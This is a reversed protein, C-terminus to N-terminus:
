SEKQNGRDRNGSARLLLDLPMAGRSALQQKVFAGVEAEGFQPNVSMAHNYAEVIDPLPHKGVFPDRMLSEIRGRAASNELEQRVKLHIDADKKPVEPDMAGAAGTLLTGPDEGLGLLGKTDNLADRTTKAGMESIASLDAIGFGLKVEAEKLQSELNMQQAMHEAATAWNVDITQAAKVLRYVDSSVYLRDSAVKVDSARPVDIAEPGYAYILDIVDESVGATKAAVEFLEFSPADARIFESAVKEIGDNAADRFRTAQTRAEEAALKLPAVSNFPNSLDTVPTSAVGEIAFAAKVIDLDSMEGHAVRYSKRVSYSDLASATKKAKNEAGLQEAAAASNVTLTDLDSDANAGIVEDANTLPVAKAKDEGSSSQLHALQRANNVAHSVLTVEKDNMGFDAAVKKLAANPTVGVNMLDICEEAAKVLSHQRAEPMLELTM